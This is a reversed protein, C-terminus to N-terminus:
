DGIASAVASSGGRSDVKCGCRGGAHGPAALDSNQAGKQATSKSLVLIAMLFPAVIRATQTAKAKAASTGAAARPSGIETLTAEEVRRSKSLCAHGEGLGREIEPRNINGFTEDTPLMRIEPRLHFALMTAVKM